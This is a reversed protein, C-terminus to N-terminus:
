RIMYVESGIISDNIYHLIFNHFLEIFGFAKSDVWFNIDGAKRLPNNAEFGSLTIINMGKERACACANLINKSTGGSSIAILIDNKDAFSELAKRFVNEYGYDNSFTTLMPSGSIAMAKLGANKTLDIAMHEAIAASGGNGIIFIKSGTKKTDALIGVCKSMNDYASKDNLFNRALIDYRQYYGEILLSKNEM